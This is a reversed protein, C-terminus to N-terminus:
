INKILNLLYDLSIHQRKVPLNTFKSFRDVKEEDIPIIGTDLVIIRKYGGFM